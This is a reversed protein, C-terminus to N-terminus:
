ANVLNRKAQAKHAQCTSCESRGPQALRGCGRQCMPRWAEHRQKPTSGGWVGDEVKNDYAYARCEAQRPCTSCITVAQDETQPDFFLHTLGTCATM